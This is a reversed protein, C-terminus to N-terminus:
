GMFFQPQRLNEESPDIQKKEMFLSLSINLRMIKLM